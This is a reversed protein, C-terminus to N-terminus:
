NFKRLDDIISVDDKELYTTIRFNEKDWAITLCYRNSRAVSHNITGLLM